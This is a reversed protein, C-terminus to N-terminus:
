VLMSETPSPTHIVPLTFSFTSGEGVKSEVWIRGGHAEVTMKCFTLGLGTGRRATATNEVQTFKEFIREQQEAPIGIGTDAVDIRVHDGQSSVKLTIAGQAPTHKIANSLLNAIVRGILQRDCQVEAQEPCTVVQVELKELEALAQVADVNEAILDCLNVTEPSIKFQGAELKSIDLLESVLELLTHGSHRANDVLRRHDDNMQANLTMALIDLVGLLSTIPNRLDHVIMDTLNQRLKESRRLQQNSARLRNTITGALQATVLTPITLTVWNVILLPGLDRAAVPIGWIRIMPLVEIYELYLIIGYSVVSAVAIAMAAWPGLLFAAGFVLLLYLVLTPTMPGGTYHVALTVILTYAIMAVWAIGRTPWQRELAYLGGMTIFLASLAVLTVEQTPIALAISRDNSTLILGSLAVVLIGVAVFTSRLDQVLSKERVDFITRQATRKNM